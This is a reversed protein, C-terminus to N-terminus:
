YEGKISNQDEFPLKSMHNIYRKDAFIACILVGIFIAFFVILTIIQMIGFEQGSSLLLRFM